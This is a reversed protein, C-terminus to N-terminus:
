YKRCIQDFKPFNSQCSDRLTMRKPVSPTTLNLRSERKPLHDKNNGAHNSIDAITSKIPESTIKTVTVRIRHLVLQLKM